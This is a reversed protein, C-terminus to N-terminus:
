VGWRVVGPDNSFYLGIKSEPRTPLGKVGFEVDWWKMQHDIKQCGVVGNVWLLAVTESSKGEIMEKAASRKKGSINQLLGALSPVSNYKNASKSNRSLGELRFIRLQRDRTDDAACMMM